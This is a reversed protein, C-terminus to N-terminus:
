IKETNDAKLENTEYSFLNEMLHRKLSEIRRKGRQGHAKTGIMIFEAVGM